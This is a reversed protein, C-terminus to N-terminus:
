DARVGLIRRVAALAAEPDPVTVLPAGARVGLWDGVVVVPRGHVGALAVESRTGWGGPFAVVVEGAAAVLSNRADGLGTPIRVLVWPNATGPDVSPLLGITLGGNEVAGRSVAEAVGSRGGTVVVLGDGALLGGLRRAAGAVADDVESGGVVSVLRLPEVPGAHDGVRATDDM